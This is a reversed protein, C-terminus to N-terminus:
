ELLSHPKADAPSHWIANLIARSTAPLYSREPAFLFPRLGRPTVAKAANMLSTAREASTTVTVVLCNKAGVVKQQQGSRWYQFYGRLKTVFRPVDMTSRDAELFGHVRGPNPGSLVNVIFFADPAIPIRERRSAHELWVADRIFGDPCWRELVVTGSSDCAYALAVRFRAIMLAHELFFSHLRRNKEALNGVVSRGSDEALLRAGRDALAYVMPANGIIRQSRPRDLLGAHFLKQLRRLVAQGSGGVLLQIQDSAIVRHEAVLRIIEHDRPQLAFSLTSERARAFRPLRPSTTATM